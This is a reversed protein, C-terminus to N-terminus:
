SEPRRRLNGKLVHQRLATAVTEQLREFTHETVSTHGVFYVKFLMDVNALFENLFGRKTDWGETDISFSLRFGDHNEPEYHCDVTFPPLDDNHCTRGIKDLIGEVQAYTIM